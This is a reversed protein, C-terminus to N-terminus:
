PAPTTPTQEHAVQNGAEPPPLPKVRRREEEELERDAEREAKEM